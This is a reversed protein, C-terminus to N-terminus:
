FGEASVISESINFVFRSQRLGAGIKQFMTEAVTPSM